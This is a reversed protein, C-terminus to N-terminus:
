FFIHKKREKYQLRGVPPNPLLFNLTIVFCKGSIHQLIELVGAPAASYNIKLTNM